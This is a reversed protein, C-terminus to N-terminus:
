FKFNAGTYISRGMGPTALGWAVGTGSMTKGQGMYVGGLPDNYFRDLLNEIGIDIRVHEWEYSGRLHVLGYGATKIENRVQSVNTKAGVMEAEVTGSWGGLRHVIAARGNLPMINYLNDDTTANRGRVYNLIGTATFSGYGTNEALSLHGSVDIGHMRASQNVFQLYVFANTVTQNAAGCNANASSCRAADIYNSIYSYYPTLKLGVTKETDHLDITASVTHAVEPELDLNGVYGNGDGAWNIMRMAMGGTSWTYREYLNPSRTKMAYGFEVTGTEAPTFRALATLDFNNDTKKRNAANFAAAEAAYTANYGQVTGANMDVKEYRVGFQTLWNSNWEREWEGFMALRDRKGNNINWFTDPWMGKGSADWWDDLRYQQTEGGVRLLNGASLPIHAKVTAGTNRGETDMPMGAACGNMGASPTCPIGDTAPATANPGYWFLKDDFFQMAHRTTEHYVRAELDGWGYQGDYSLNAQKSDNGTMDMRQNPWGQYAIDQLGLSLNLLHNDHRLAMDISHNTSKYMTSGVEDAALWERGGAAAGAPKFDDGAKYDDAKATSGRYSVSFEEGAVTAALNGGQANGNSRYFTGIEGKHLLGEGPKAFEPDASDVLITGGISDGAISVPTIGAFVIASGVNTPDIYSLAPNMHNGCASILDMGDVKIRLRDDALGHIVPLSSVGGSGQLNLGPTNQLLSASDSTAPAMSKLEETGMVTCLPTQTDVLASATVDITPKQVDEAVATGHTFTAALMAFLLQRLRSPAHVGARLGENQRFLAHEADIKRM